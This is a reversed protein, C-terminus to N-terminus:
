VWTAKIESNIQRQFVQKSNAYLASEVEGASEVRMACLVAFIHRLDAPSGSGKKQNPLVMDPSDTELVLAALPLKAIAKRTKVAREFCITSGVGIKFGLSVFQVAQEYSGAFAHIVGSRVGSRKILRYVDAHARVSHVIVPLDHKTACNLQAEFLACQRAVEGRRYDLGIEGVAVIGSEESAIRSVLLADLAQLDDEDAHRSLFCPHLGLAISCVEHGAALAQLSVWSDRDVAPVVYREIGLRRWDSLRQKLRDAFQVFDLHCHTDFFAM